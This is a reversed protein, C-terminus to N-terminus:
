RVIYSLKTTINYSVLYMYRRANLSFFSHLFLHAHILNAADIGIEHLSVFNGFFESTYIKEWNVSSLPYRVHSDMFGGTKFVMQPLELQRMLYM